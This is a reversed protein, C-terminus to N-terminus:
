AVRLELSERVDVEDIARREDDLLAALEDGPGAVLSPVVAVVGFHREHDVVVVVAFADGRQQEFVQRRDRLDFPISRKVAWVRPSLRPMSVTNALAPQGTCRRKSEPTTSTSKESASVADNMSETSRRSCRASERAIARRSSAVDIATIPAESSGSVIPPESHRVARRRGAGVCTGRSGSDCSIPPSRSGVGRDGVDGVVDRQRDNGHGGVGQRRRDVLADLLPDPARDDDGAEVADVPTSMGAITAWARRLPSRMMPGPLM